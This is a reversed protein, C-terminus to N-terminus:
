HGHAPSSGSEDAAIGEEVLECLLHYLAAHAQQVRPTDDSPIALTVDAREGCRGGDAGTFAVTRLGMSRAQELGAAVNASSGSTSLGIAVDGARGKAEVQRSFIRTFDYDNGIATLVSTDTSLAEVRLARREKRFRAVLECAIHQADAASGGNGFVLVGGGDRLAELVMEVVERLTGALPKCALIAEASADLYTEIREEM